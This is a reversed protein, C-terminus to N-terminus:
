CHTTTTRKRRQIIFHQCIHTEEALGTSNGKSSGYSDSEKRGGKSPRRTTVAIRSHSGRPSSRRFRKEREIRAHIIPLMTKRGVLQESPRGARCQNFLQGDLSLNFPHGEDLAALGQRNHM